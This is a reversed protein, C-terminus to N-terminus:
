INQLVDFLEPDYVREAPNKLDELVGTIVLVSIKQAKFVFPSDEFFTRGCAKCKYRHAHYRIVCPRGAINAHRILKVTTEKPRALPMGCHKCPPPTNKLEIDVILLEGVSSLDDQEVDSDRLNFFELIASGEKSFADKM